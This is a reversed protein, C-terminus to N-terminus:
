RTLSIPRNIAVYVRSDVERETDFARLLHELTDKKRIKGEEMRRYLCQYLDRLKVKWARKGIREAPLEGAAILDRLFRPSYCVKKSAAYLCVTRESILASPIVM